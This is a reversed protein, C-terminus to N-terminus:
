DERGMQLRLIKVLELVFIKNNYENAVKLVGPSIFKEFFSFLEVRSYSVIL